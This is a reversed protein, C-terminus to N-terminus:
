HRVVAACIRQLVGWHFALYDVSEFVSTEWDRLMRHQRATLWGEYLLEDAWPTPCDYLTTATIPRTLVGADQPM